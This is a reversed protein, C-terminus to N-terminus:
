DLISNLFKHSHALRRAIVAAMYQHLAVAAWPNHEELLRLARRSLKYVTTPQTAMVEASRPKGLYMAMEGIITGAGMKSLRLYNGNKLKLRVVVEGSEVFFIDDSSDGQDILMVGRDISMPKFYRMLSSVDEMDPFIDHLQGKFPEMQHIQTAEQELLVQDECWELGSDFENFVVLHVDGKTLLGGKEFPRLLKPLLGTLVVRFDLEQALLKLRQFSLVASSDVGKVAQFDLVIFRVRAERPEDLRGRIQQLLKNATGFFIFGQLKLIYIQEGAREILENHRDPRSVNSHYHMATAAYKVVDIRSYEVVFLTVGVIIGVIIGEFFGLTGIVVVILVVIAYDSKTFKFWADYIWEVLFSLGLFLLLGGLVPKPFYSLVSAGAVMTVVFCLSCMVGVLRSNAGMRHALISMSMTHFGIIGGGLGSFINAYGAARLEQNLDIDSHAMVEMGSANLLLSIIGVFLVTAMKPLVELITQWSVEGLVAYHEPSWLQGSPFPGLLWGGSSAEGVSTGTIILVAYFVVTAIVLTIPLIMFKQFLRLLLLLTMALGLGPLWKVAVGHACLADLNSPSVSTDSMVSISGITLLWGSGALFGGIVPYPIFRIVSGLKFWGLAFFVLGALLTSLTIAVIVTAYISDASFAGAMSTSLASAMLGVIAATSDQPFCTSVPFSSTFAVVLGLVAGSILAMGIGNSVYSTLDGTFILAAFSISAVVGISGVLLGALVNALLRDTKFQTLIERNM